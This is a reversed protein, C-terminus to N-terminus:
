QVPFQPFHQNWSDLNFVLCNKIMQRWPKNKPGVLPLLRQLRQQEASLTAADLRSSILIVCYLVPKPPATFDLEQTAWEYLLTDRLKQVFISLTWQGSKLAQLNKQIKQAVKPNQQAQQLLQPAEFDKVEILLIHKQSEVIFDVAKMCHSLGHSADDFRRADQAQTFDFRRTGEYFVKSSNQANSVM